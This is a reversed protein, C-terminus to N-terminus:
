AVRELHRASTSAQATRARHRDRSARPHLSILAGSRVVGMPGSGAFRAIGTSRMTFAAKAQRYGVRVGAACVILLGAVGPLALAALATLSAPVLVASVVHDLLSKATAPKVSAPALPATGSLVIARHLPTAAVSGLTPAQILQGFLPADGVAPLQPVQSAQPGFLPAADDPAPLAVHMAGSTGILHPTTEEIGFLTYLDSPLHGLATGAGAVSTLMQQVSEIVDTIPTPSTPLAVFTSPVTQMTNALRAMATRVPELAKMVPGPTPKAMPAVAGTGPTTSGAPPTTATPTSGSSNSTPTLASGTPAVTTNTPSAGAGEAAATDAALTDALDSDNPQASATSETSAAGQAQTTGTATTARQGSAPVTTPQPTGTPTATGTPGAATGDVGQSKASSVGDDDALAIGAGAGILLGTSLM